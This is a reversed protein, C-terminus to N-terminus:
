VTETVLSADRAGVTDTAFEDDDTHEIAAPTTENRDGPDHRMVADCAPFSSYADAAADCCIDTVATGVVVITGTVAGFVPASEAAPGKVDDVTGVEPPAETVGTVVGVEVVVVVVM